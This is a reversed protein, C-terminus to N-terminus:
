ANAESHPIVQDPLPNTVFRVAKITPVGFIYCKLIRHMGDMVNGEADLIIPYQLDAALIKKAQDGIDRWFMPTHPIDFQFNENNWDFSELPVHEVPMTEALKWLTSARWYYLNEDDGKLYGHEPFTLPM